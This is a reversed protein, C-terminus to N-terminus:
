GGGGYPEELELLMDWGAIWTSTLAALAVPSRTDLWAENSSRLDAAQEETRRDCDDALRLILKECGEGTRPM